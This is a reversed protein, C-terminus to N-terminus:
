VMPFALLLSRLFHEWPWFDRHRAHPAVETRRSLTQTLKPSPNSTLIQTLAQRLLCIYLAHRGATGPLWCSEAKACARPMM